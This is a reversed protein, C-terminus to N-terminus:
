ALEKARDLAKRFRELFNKGDEHRLHISIGNTIPPCDPDSLANAYAEEDTMRLLAAWDTRDNKDTTTIM